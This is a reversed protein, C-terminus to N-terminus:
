EKVIKKDFYNEGDFLRLIYVGNPLDSIDISEVFSNEKKVLNVTSYIVVACPKTFNLIGDTPNPYVSFEATTSNEEIGTGTITIKVSKHDPDITCVGQRTKAYYLEYTTTETPTKTIVYTGSIEDYIHHYDTGDYYSVYVVPIASEVRLELQVSEGPSIVTRDCYLGITQANAVGFLLLLSSIFFLKKM